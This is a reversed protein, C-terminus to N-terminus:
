GYVQRRKMELFGDLAAEVGAAAEPNERALHGIFETLFDMGTRLADEPNRNDQLVKNAKAVMDFDAATRDAAKLGHIHRLQEIAIENILRTSDTITELHASREQEWNGDAKWKYLTNESVDRLERAIDAVSKLMEVYMKRASQYYIGEKNKAQTRPESM